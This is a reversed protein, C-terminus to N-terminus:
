IEEEELFIEAFENLKTNNLFEAWNKLVLAADRYGFYKNGQILLNDKTDTNLFWRPDIIRYFLTLTEANYYVEFSISRYPDDVKINMIDALNLCLKERTDDDIKTLANEDPPFRIRVLANNDALQKVTADKSYIVIDLSDQNDLIFQYAKEITPQKLNIM